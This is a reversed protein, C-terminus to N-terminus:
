ANKCTTTLSQGIVASYPSQRALSNSQCTTIKRHSSYHCVVMSCVDISKLGQVFHVWSFVITCEDDLFRFLVKNKKKIININLFFMAFLM